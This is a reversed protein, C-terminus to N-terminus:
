NKKDDEGQGEREETNKEGEKWGETDILANMKEIFKVVNEPDELIERMGRDIVADIKVILKGFNEPDRKFIEQISREIREKKAARELQDLSEDVEDHGELELLKKLVDEKEAKAAQKGLDGAKRELFRKDFCLVGRRGPDLIKASTSLLRPLAKVKYLRLQHITFARARRIRLMIITSTSHNWTTSTSIQPSSPSYIHTNVIKQLTPFPRSAEVGRNAM